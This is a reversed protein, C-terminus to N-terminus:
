DKASCGPAKSHLAALLVCKPQLVGLAIATQCEGAMIGGSGGMIRTGMISVSSNGSVRLVSGIDNDTFTGNIIEAQSTGGFSVACTTLSRGAPWKVGQIQPSKFTIPGSSGCFSLLCQESLPGCRQPHQLQKAGQLQV